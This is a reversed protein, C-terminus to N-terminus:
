ATKYVPLNNATQPCILSAYPPPLPYRYLLKQGPPINGRVYLILLPPSPRAVAKPRLPPAPSEWTHAFSPVSIWEFFQQSAHEMSFTQAYFFIFTNNCQESENLKISSLFLTSCVLLILYVTTLKLLPVPLM